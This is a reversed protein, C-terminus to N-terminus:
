TKGNRNGMPQGRDPRPDAAKARGTGAAMRWRVSPVGDIGAFEAVARGGVSPPRGGPVLRGIMYPGDDLEVMVVTYPIEARLQALFARHYIVFSWITGSPAVDTWTTERSRCEPCGPLPPWRLAACCGCRQVVLRGKRAAQWFPGAVPDDPPALGRSDEDSM